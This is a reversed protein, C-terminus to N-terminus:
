DNEEESRGASAHQGAQHGSECEVVGPTKRRTRQQDNEKERRGCDARRIRHKNAKKAHHLETPDAHSNM